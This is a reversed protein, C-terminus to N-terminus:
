ILWFLVAFATSLALYEKRPFLVLLVVSLLLAAVSLLFFRRRRAGAAESIPHKMM